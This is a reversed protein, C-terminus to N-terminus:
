SKSARARAFALTMELLMIKQQGTSCQSADVSHEGFFAKLDQRHAGFATRGEQADKARSRELAECCLSELALASVGKKLADVLPGELDVSMTPLFRMEKAFTDTLLTIIELRAVTLAVAPGAMREELARLWTPDLRGSKLLRLREGMAHDYRYLLKAYEPGMWASALQDLYRRRDSAGDVFLRDLHPTLWVINVYETLEAQSSLSTDNAITQRTPRKGDVVHGACTTKLTVEGQFGSLDLRIGWPGSSKSVGKLGPNLGRGMELLSSKRLGRGPAMLSIAELLNTKGAGNDGVLIVPQGPMCSLNLQSYSRFNELGVRGIGYSPLSENSSSLATLATM